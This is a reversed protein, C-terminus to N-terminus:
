IVQKRKLMKKHVYENINLMHLILMKRTPYEKKLKQTCYLGPDDVPVKYGLTFTTHNKIFFIQLNRLQLGVLMERCM